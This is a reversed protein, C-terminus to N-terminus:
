VDFYMSYEHPHPRLRIEDYEASKLKIYNKIFDETFVEGKLLFEQDAKLAELSGRLSDPVYSLKAAEEPPLDYLNKDVPSGPDIKNEIGDLGAMLLAAFALYPNASPDPCRFEVRIAKPSTSYMPIRCIASRNRASYALTVPAEYGPVLRKYSNNTPNCFACLAPAHKLLGGIYWLGMQSLNAYGDGAMLPKGKKWLSQHTHMGSGNDGFLPKPMFTATKGARHAVNKVVYKYIGMQDAMKLLTDFRLDIECQGGTAVEHHQAEVNLGLEQMTLVMENRLDMHRDAPPVPLYGEKHRIKYAQNPFEERGTNWIGEVSDVAYFSENSASSYRVDEFIFFEAEPGFYAADALGSAKLYEEAKKAIGRPSRSYPERTIPDEIDCILSLTPVEIFPDIFATDADPMVLMDSAEIGQWGRISSGDFGLGDEFLEENLETVPVSFHQWSGHIDCFKLDIIKVDKAKALALVEKPTM